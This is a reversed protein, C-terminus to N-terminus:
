ISEMYNLFLPLGSLVSENIYMPKTKTRPIDHWIEIKCDKVHVAVFGKTWVPKGLISNLIYGRKKSYKEISEDALEKNITKGGFCKASIYHMELKDRFNTLAQKYLTDIYKDLTIEM